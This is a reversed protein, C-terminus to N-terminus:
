YDSEELFADIGKPKRKKENPMESNKYDSRVFTRVKNSFVDAFRDDSSDNLATKCASRTIQDITTRKEKNESGIRQLYTSYEDYTGKVFGLVIGYYFTEPNKNFNLSKCGKLLAQSMSDNKDATAGELTLVLMPVALLMWRAKM